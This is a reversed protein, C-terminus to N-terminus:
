CFGIMGITISLFAERNWLTGRGIVDVLIVEASSCLGVLIAAGALRPASKRLPMTLWHRRRIERRLLHTLLVIVVFFIAYNLLLRRSWGIANVAIAISVCTYFGWALIQCLWYATNSRTTPQSNLM